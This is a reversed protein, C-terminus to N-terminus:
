VGTWNQPSPSYPKYGPYGEHDEREHSESPRRDYNPGERTQPRSYGSSFDFGGNNAIPPPAVPAEVAKQPAPTYTRYPVPKNQPAIGFDSQPGPSQRQNLGPGTSKRMNPDAGYHDPSTHGDLEQPAIPMHAPGPTMQRPIGFGNQSSTPSQHVPSMRMGAAPAAHDYPQHAGYGDAVHNDYGQDHGNYNQEHAGYNQGLENFGQDHGGYAQDHAGYAQDHGGYAQNHANYGQDHAGYTQDHAGYGQDHAAYGQDHAGYGQDHAAYGQNQAGYGQDHAGYGQDHGGYPSAPQGYNNMQGPSTTQQRNYPDNRGMARQQQPPRRQQQQQQPGGFRPSNMGQNQQPLAEKKPPPLDDMEVEEELVMKKSNANEWSPMAPLADADHKSVDFEAYQPPGHSAQPVFAPAPAPAPAPVHAAMPAEQRYGGYGSQQPNYPEDLHKHPKGGPTDCCGCCNGCCKLCYCCSCCCSMGLCTCRVICIVISLLILGGIIMLAIAPWKCYVHAMCGDWSSFAQKIESAKNESDSILDRKIVQAALSRAVTDVVTEWLGGRLSRAMAVDVSPM